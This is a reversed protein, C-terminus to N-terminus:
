YLRFSVEINAKVSVPKNNYRGPTFQWNEINNIASEELGFGLPVIIQLDRIKGTDKDVVGSLLVIGECRFMRAEETYHPLLQRTIQPVVVGTEDAKIETKYWADQEAKGPITKGSLFLKWYQPVYNLLNETDKLFIGDLAAYLAPERGNEKILPIEISLEALQTKKLPAQNARLGILTKQVRDFRLFIRHGQLKLKKGNLDLKIIEIKSCTTWPGIKMHGMPSGDANFLLKPGAYFHRLTVVKGIYKAILSNKMEEINDNASITPNLGIIILCVTCFIRM